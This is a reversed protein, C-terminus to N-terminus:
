NRKRMSERTVYVIETRKKKGGKVTEQLVVRIRLRLERDRSDTSSRQRAEMELSGRGM